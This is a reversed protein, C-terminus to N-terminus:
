QRYSNKSTEERKKIERMDKPHSARSKEFKSKKQKNMPPSKEKKKKPETEMPPLVPWVCMVMHPKKKKWIAKKKKRAAHM